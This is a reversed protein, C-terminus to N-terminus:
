TGLRDDTLHIQHVFEKAEGCDLKDQSFVDQYSLVLEALREKWAHSM